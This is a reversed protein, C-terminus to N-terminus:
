RMPRRSSSSDSASCSSPHRDPTRRRLPILYGVGRALHLSVLVLPALVGVCADRRTFAGRVGVSVAAALYAAVPALAWRRLRRSALSAVALVPLAVTWAAVALHAGRHTGLRRSASGMAVNRRMFARYTTDRLHGVRADPAHVVRYGAAEVRRGLDVDEHVELSEDFVHPVGVSAARPIAASAAVEAPIMMNWLKPYYRGARVGTRGGRVSGAGLPSHLVVDLAVDFSSRSELEDSGGLLGLGPESAIAEDMRTLWDRRFLADDDAFALYRGRAQDCARNLAVSRNPGVTRGPGEVAAERPCGVWRIPFPAVEAARRVIARAEEDDTAGAVLAEVRDAPYDLACLTRLSDALMCGGHVVPLIVSYRPAGPAEATM